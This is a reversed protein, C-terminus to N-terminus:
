SEECREGKIAVDRERLHQMEIKKIGCGEGGVICCRKEKLALDREM